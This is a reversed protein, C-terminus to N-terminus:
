SGGTRGWVKFIEAEVEATIRNVSAVVWEYTKRNAGRPEMEFLTQKAAAADVIATSEVFEATRVTPGLVNRLFSAAHVQAQDMPEYRTILLKVFDFRHDPAHAEVGEMLNGAIGLFSALSM